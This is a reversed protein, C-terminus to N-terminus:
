FLLGAYPYLFYIAVLAIGLFVIAKVVKKAIWLGVFVVVVIGALALMLTSSM